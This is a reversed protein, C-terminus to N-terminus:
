PRHDIGTGASSGPGDAIADGSDEVRAPGSGGLGRMGTHADGGGTAHAQGSRVVVDGPPPPAPFPGPGPAPPHQLLAWVLAAVGVAGQVSAGVVQGAEPGNLLWVLPTSVVMAVAFVVVAIKRGQTVM